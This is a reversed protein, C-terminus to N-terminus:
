YHSHHAKGARGNNNNNNNNPRNNINNNHRFAGHSSIFYSVWSLLFLCNPAVNGNKLSQLEASSIIILSNRNVSDLSKVSHM